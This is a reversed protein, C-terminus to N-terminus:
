IQDSHPSMQYIEVHNAEESYRPVAPHLVQYANASRSPISEFPSVAFRAEFRSSSGSIQLFVIVHSRLLYSDFSEADNGRFWKRLPALQNLCLNTM